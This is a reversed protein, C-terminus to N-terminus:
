RPPGCFNRQCYTVVDLWSVSEPVKLLVTPLGKRSIRILTQRVPPLTTYSDSSEAKDPSFFSGSSTRRM